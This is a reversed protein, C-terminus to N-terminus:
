GTKALRDDRADALSRAPPRSADHAVRGGLDRAVSPIVVTAVCGGDHTLTLAAAGGYLEELRQRTNQLALGNGPSAAPKLPGPGSDRVQLVLQGDRAFARVEVRGKWPCPAIGHRIANEVLPQLVLTPVRAGQLEPEVDFAFELRDGFRVQEIELYARVFHLERELTSEQEDADMVRRLLDSLRAIVRRTQNPDREVLASVTNLTNFLFHPQMQMQLATLRAQALQMTLTEERRRRAEAERWADFGSTGAVIAAYIFLDLEFLKLVGGTSWEDIQHGGHLAHVVLDHFFARSFSMAIVIAIACAIHIAAVRAVPGRVGRALRIIAPTLLAWLLYPPFQREVLPWWNPTLSSPGVCASVAAQVVAVGALILWFLAIGSRGLKPITVIPM